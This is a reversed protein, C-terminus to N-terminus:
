PRRPMVLAFPVRHQQSRIVAPACPGQFQLELSSGKPFAELCRVLMEPVLAVDLAGEGRIASPVASRFGLGESFGKSRVALVPSASDLSVTLTGGKGHAAKAQKAAALLADRLVVASFAHATPVVTRYNPYSGDVLRCSFAWAGCQIRGTTESASVRAIGAPLSDAIMSCAAAPLIVQAKEVACTEAQLEQYGLMCGDTTVVRLARGEHELLAGMLVAGRSTCRAAFASGFALANKMEAASVSCVLIHRESDRPAAPFDDAPLTEISLTSAPSEVTARLGAVSLTASKAGKLAEWLPKAPIAASWEGPREMNSTYVAMTELDTVRLTLQYGKAEALITALIPLNRTDALKRLCGIARIDVASLAVSGVNEHPLGILANMM